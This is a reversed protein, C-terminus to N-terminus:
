WGAGGGKPVGGRGGDVRCNNVTSLKEKWKAKLIFVIKAAGRRGETEERQQVVSKWGKAQKMTELQATRRGGVGGRGEQKKIKEDQGVVVRTNTTTENKWKEM